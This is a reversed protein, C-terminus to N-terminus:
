IEPFRSVNDKIRKLMELLSSIESPSFGDLAEDVLKRVEPYVEDVKRQGKKTLYILSHRRDSPMARREVFGGDILPEIMRGLNSRDVTLREALYSINQGNTEQLIALIRWHVTAIGHPRLLHNLHNMNAAQITWIYYTPFENVSFKVM